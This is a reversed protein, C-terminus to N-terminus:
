RTLQDMHTQEMRMTNECQNCNSQWDTKCYFSSEKFSLRLQLFFCPLKLKAKSVPSPCSWSSIPLAIATCTSVPYFKFHFFSSNDRLNTWTLKNWWNAYNLIILIDFIVVFFSICVHFLCLARMFVNLESIMSLVKSYNSFVM